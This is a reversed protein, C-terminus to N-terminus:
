IMCAGCNNFVVSMLASAAVYYVDTSNPAVAMDPNHRSKLIIGNAEPPGIMGTYNMQLYLMLPTKQM